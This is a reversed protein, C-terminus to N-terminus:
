TQLKGCVLVNTSKGKLPNQTFVSQVQSPKTELAHDSSSTGSIGANTLPRIFLVTHLITSPNEVCSISM